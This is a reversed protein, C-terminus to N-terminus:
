LAKFEAVLEEIRYNITAVITGFDQEYYTEIGFMEEIKIRLNELDKIRKEIVKATQFTTTEM